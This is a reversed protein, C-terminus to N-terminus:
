GGVARTIDLGANKGPVVAARAGWDVREIMGVGRAQQGRELRKVM